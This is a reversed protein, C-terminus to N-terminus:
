FKEGQEKKGKAMSFHSHPTKTQIQYNPNRDISNEDMPNKDTPNKDHIGM